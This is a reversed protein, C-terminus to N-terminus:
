QDKQYIYSAYFWYTNGYKAALERYAATPNNYKKLIGIYDQFAAITNASLGAPPPAFDRRGTNMMYMLIAEEFHRPTQQYHIHQLGELRNMFRGVKGDLLLGMMYYEYAMKNHNNVSLLEELCVEPQSPIVIFDSKLMLGDLQKLKPYSSFDKKEIVDALQNAWRKYRSTRSLLALCKQAAAYEKKLIYVLALRQLNRPTDGTVSLAEHAWHQAENILGLDYFLDSYQIPFLHRINEPMFLGPYGAVQPFAFMSECLQGTFYLARNLQYRGIYTDLLHGNQVVEIVHQWLHHEAAYDVTLMAQQKKQAFFLTGAGSLVFAICIQVVITLTTRESFFAQVCKTRTITSFPARAGLGFFLVLAPFFFLLFFAPWFAFGEGPLGLNLFYASGRTQIFLFASSFLPVFFAFGLYIAPLIVKQQYILDYLLVIAVFLLAPGGTIYYLVTYLGIFIGGRFIINYFNSYIFLVAALLALVFGTTVALPFDYDHLLIFLFLTPLWHLFLVPSRNKLRRILLYSVLAICAFLITLLVAGSWTRYFFQTLFAALLENLGGAYTTFSQIFPWHFFFVPQQAQYFLKADIRFYFIM